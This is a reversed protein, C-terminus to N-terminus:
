RTSRSPWTSSPRAARPRRRGRSSPTSRGTSRSSRPTRSSPPPTPRGLLRNLEWISVAALVDRALVDGGGVQSAWRADAQARPHARGADRTVITVGRAEARRALAATIAGAGGAPFPFGHRQGLAALFLGFFGGLASDPTLDAHLANGAILLSAGEGKFREETFARVPQLAMRALERLGRPGLRDLLSVGARVPPVPTTLGRLLAPEIRSWFRM